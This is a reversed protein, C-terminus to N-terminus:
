PQPAFLDSYDPSLNAQVDAFEGPEVAARVVSFVARAHIAADNPLVGARDSIRQYFEKLSFFGGNEGEHGRLHTGIEPPLQSALDKAENGVIREALTKLTAQIAREAQDRSDLQAASQVHKVFEDHKM